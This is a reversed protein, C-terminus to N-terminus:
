ASGALQAQLRGREEKLAKREAQLRALDHTMYSIKERRERASNANKEPSAKRSEVVLKREAVLAKIEDQVKRGRELVYHERLRLNREEEPSKVAPEDTGGREGSQPPVPQYLYLHPMARDIGIVNRLWRLGARHEPWYTIKAVEEDDALIDRTREALSRAFQLAPLLDSEASMQKFDEDAEMRIPLGGSVVHRLATLTLPVDLEAYHRATKRKTEALLLLGILASGAILRTRDGTHRLVLPRLSEGLLVEARGFKGAHFIWDYRWQPNQLQIEIEGIRYCFIELEHDGVQGYALCSRPGVAVVDIDSTPRFLPGDFAASGTVAVSTVDPLIRLVEGLVATRDYVGM